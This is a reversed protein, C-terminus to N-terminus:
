MPLPVMVRGNETTALLVRAGGDGLPVVDRGMETTEKRLPPVAPPLMLGRRVENKLKPFRGDETAVVHLAADVMNPTSPRLTRWSNLGTSGSSSTRESLSLTVTTLDNSSPQHMTPRSENMLGPSTSIPATGAHHKTLGTLPRLADRGIRVDERPTVTSTLVLAPYEERSSTMDHDLKQNIKKKIKKRGGERSSCQFNVVVRLQPPSREKQISCIFIENLACLRLNEQVEGNSAGGGNFRKYEVGGGKRTERQFRQAYTESADCAYGNGNVDKSTWRREIIRRVSREVREGIKLVPQGM